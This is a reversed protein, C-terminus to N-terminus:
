IRNLQYFVHIEKGKKELFSAKGLWESLSSTLGSHLELEDLEPAFLLKGIVPHGLIESQRLAFM